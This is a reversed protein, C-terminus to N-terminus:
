PEKFSCKHKIRSIPVGPNTYKSPCTLTGPIGLKAMEPCCASNYHMFRHWEDFFGSSCGFECLIGASEFYERHKPHELHGYFKYAVLDASFTDECTLCPCVFVACGGDPCAIDIATCTQLELDTKRATM